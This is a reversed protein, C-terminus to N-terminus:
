VDEWKGIVTGLVHFPERMPEHAANLPQLWRRGDEENNLTQLFEEAPFRDDEGRLLMEYYAAQKHLNADIHYIPQFVNHWRTM